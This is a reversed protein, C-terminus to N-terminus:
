PGSGGGLGSAVAHETRAYALGADVMARGLLTVADGLAGAYVGDVAVYDELAVRLAAGAPGLSAGAEAGACRVAAAAGVLTVADDSLRAGAATLDDPHVTLRPM